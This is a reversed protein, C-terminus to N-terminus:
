FRKRLPTKNYHYRADLGKRGNADSGFNSRICRHEGGRLVEAKSSPKHWLVALAGPLLFGGSDASCSSIDLWQKNPTGKAGLLEWFDAIM